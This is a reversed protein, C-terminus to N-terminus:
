SSSVAGTTHIRCLGYAHDNRCHTEVPAEFSTGSMVEAATKVRDLFRAVDEAGFAQQVPDAYDFKKSQLVLLRAGGSPLGRTAPLAGLLHAVQYAALQPDAAVDAASTSQNRGTKLDVIVIEGDTTQEVRDISGSLVARGARLPVDVEFHPEADRLMVGADEARRLYRHLQGILRRARAQEARDRWDADFELEGWRDAVAQWLEEEDGGSAHELAAHILTGLSAAANGADGGLDGIVWDLQCRELTHLKSPSVRVPEALPDHLPATSTPAPVGYWESPDAGAVGAGALLALQGAAHRRAAVPATTPPASTLTRRHMAVLGRLTLPHPAPPASPAPLLELFASPGTDEDDVATVVVESRARSLARAFLRLEDHLVARRREVPDTPGGSLRWGELMGGRLRPNPWIGEQVGSVIVTDFETGVAAAPTMVRVVSAAVDADLRDDAIDADLVGRLFVLPEADTQREGFRKAAQFLAVVADLDRGAAVAAPGNGAAVAAWGQEWGSREWATWLLEHATAGAAHQARLLDLTEALRTAVRAERGPLAATRAPEALAATLLASGPITADPEARRLAARLRRVEISDLGAAALLEAADLESRAEIAALVIGTLDRTPRLAGLAASAGAARVPVDRAALEVALAQVQRTDHAIVAVRHWGIGDHLRRERILRAIADYEEAASRLVLTRVSRDPTAAGPARRHSVVGAAGIRAVVRRLVDSAFPTGRHSGTLVGAIGLRAALAAFHEAGAGRFAGSGIDPDGFAVVAIGRDQLAVLLEVGGVTLEQADDVLIARLGPPLLAAADAGGVLGAAERLLTVADRHAGRMRDRVDAYDVAFSAVAAWVPRDEAAARDRLEAPGLGLTTCEALFARLETRFGSTSRVEAPVTGPWRGPRVTEDAADGVLLDHILQDEDGGTLLQPPEGDRRVEAARVIGYAFSPLSRALPGATARGVELALGDRLATAGPRSPTLVLAADAADADDVLRRLRRRLVLTKGTGPGGVVVGSRTAPLEVVARQEADLM